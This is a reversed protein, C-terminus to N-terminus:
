KEVVKERKLNKDQQRLRRERIDREPGEAQQWAILEDFNRRSSSSPTCPLTKTWTWTVVTNAGDPRQTRTAGNHLVEAGAKYIFRVPMDAEVGGGRCFCYTIHAINIDISNFPGAVKIEVPQGDANATVDVGRPVNASLRKLESEEDPTLPGTRAKAELEKKKLVNFADAQTIAVPNAKAPRNGRFWGAGHGFEADCDGTGIENDMKYTFDTVAGSANVTYTVTTTFTCDGPCSVTPPQPTSSPPPTPSPQPTSSPQPKPSPQSQPSPQPPPSGSPLAGPPTTVPVEPKNGEEKTQQAKKEECEKLQKEIKKIQDQWFGVGTMDRSAGAAALMGQAIQLKVRLLAECPDPLPAAGERFFVNAPPVEEALITLDNSAVITATVSFPGPGKTARIPLNFVFTANPDSSPPAQLTQSNGGQMDVQGTCEVHIPIPQQSGGVGTAVGTVTTSGGKPLTTTPASLKIGVNRYEGKMEVNGERLRIETLGVVNKPSEFVLKRPSEALKKVEQGGITIATTSFYGDFPGYIEKPRGQQGVPWWVFDPHTKKSEPYWEGGIIKGEPAIEIIPTADKGQVVDFLRLHYRAPTNPEPKPPHWVFSSQKVPLRMGDFAVVLNDLADQNKAVEDETRGKAKTDVTGSITDGIDDPLNVIVQGYLTDFTTTNLGRGFDSHVSSSSKDQPANKKGSEAQKGEEKEVLERLQNEGEKLSKERGKSSCDVVLIYGKINSTLENYIRVLGDRPFPGVTRSEGSRFRGTDFRFVSSYSFVNVQGTWNDKFEISDGVCIVITRPNLRPSSKGSEDAVFEVSHTQNELPVAVPKNGFPGVIESLTASLVSSGLWPVLFLILAVTIGFWILRNRAKM